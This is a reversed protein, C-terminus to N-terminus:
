GLSAVGRQNDCGTSSNEYILWAGVLLYILQAREADTFLPPPQANITSALFLAALLSM